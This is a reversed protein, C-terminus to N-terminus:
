LSETRADHFPYRGDVPIRTACAGQSVVGGDVKLEHGAGRVRWDDYTRLALRCLRDVANEDERVAGAADLGPAGDALQIVPTYLAFRPGYVVKEDARAGSWAYLVAFAHHMAAEPDPARARVEGDVLRGVPRAQQILRLAALGAKAETRATQAWPRVEDALAGKPLVDPLGRAARLEDAIAGVGDPWDPADLLPGLADVRLRLHLTDPRAVPGDACARALVAAWPAVDEIARAWSAEADYDDPALLFDMATALAIKSAHPQTMPNCLVGGVVDVLDADRGRYAGLHLSSTMLADNVPYNDWVLIRHGGTAKAWGRADNATITPSCV